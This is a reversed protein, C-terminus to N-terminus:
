AVWTTGSGAGCGVAGIGASLITFFDHFICLRTSETLETVEVTDELESDMLLVDVECASLTGALRGAGVGHSSCRAPFGGIGSICFALVTILPTCRGGGPACSGGIVPIPGTFIRAGKVPLGPAGRLGLPTAVPFIPGGNAGGWRGAPFGVLVNPATDRKVPNPFAELVVLPIEAVVVPVQRAGRAALLIGDRDARGIGWDRIGLAGPGDRPAGALRSGVPDAAPRLIGHLM